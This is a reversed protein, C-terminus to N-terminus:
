LTYIIGEVAGSVEDATIGTGFAVGQPFQYHVNENAALPVAAFPVGTITLADYIAAEAAAAATEALLISDVTVAGTVLALADANFFHPVLAGSGGFAASLDIDGGVAEVLLGARFKIGKPFLLQRHGNAALRALAIPNTAVPGAAQDYVRITAAAAVATVEGVNLSYVGGAGIYAVGTAAAAVTISRKALAM